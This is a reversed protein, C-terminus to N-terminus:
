SIKSVEGQPHIKATTVTKSHAIHFLNFCIRVDM